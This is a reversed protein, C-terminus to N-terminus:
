QNGKTNDNQTQGSTKRADAQERARRVREAWYQNWDRGTRSAPRTASSARNNVNAPVAPSAATTTGAQAAATYNETIAAPSGSSNATRRDTRSPPSPRSPRITKSFVAATKALTVPQGQIVVAIKDDALAKVEIEDRMEGKKWWVQNNTKENQMLVWIEGNAEKIWGIYRWGGHSTKANPDMEPEAPGAEPKPSLRDGMSSMHRDIPTQQQGSTRPKIQVEATATEGRSLSAYVMLGVMCLLVLALSGIAGCLLRFVTSSRLRIM